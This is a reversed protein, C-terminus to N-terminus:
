AAHGQAPPAIELIGLWERQGLPELRYGLGRYLAVAPLNDRYVKLRVRAAGRRRAVAHLHAMMMRAIGRGRAAPHVAVGLSPVEFGESWGRLLGYAVVTGDSAVAVHYEDGSGGAVSRAAVGALTACDFPHPHFSAGDGAAVLAELMGVLGAVWESSLPHITAVDCTRTPACGTTTMTAM